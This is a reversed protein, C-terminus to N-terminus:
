WPAQLAAVRGRGGDENQDVVSIALGMYHESFAGVLDLVM